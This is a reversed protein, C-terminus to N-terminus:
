FLSDVISKGIFFIIFLFLIVIVVLSLDLFGHGLIEMFDTYEDYEGSRQMMYKGLFYMILFPVVTVVLGVIFYLVIM